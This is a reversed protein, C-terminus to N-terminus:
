RTIAAPDRIMEQALERHVKKNLSDVEKDRPILARAPAPEHSLFAELAATLMEIALGAMKPIDLTLKWAPEQSLKRASKAIKSALENKLGALEQEFHSM